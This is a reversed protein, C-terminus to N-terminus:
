AMWGPSGHLHVNIAALMEATNDAHSGERVERWSSAAGWNGHPGGHEGYALRSWQACVILTGGHVIFISAQGRISGGMPAAGSEGSVQWLPPVAPYGEFTAEVVVTDGNAPHM